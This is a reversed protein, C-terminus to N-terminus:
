INDVKVFKGGKESSEVCAVVAALSNAADSGMIPVPKGAVVADVFATIIGSTVQGGVANTQIGRTKHLRKEGTPLIAVVPYEPDDELKLVGKTCYLVTSNEEGAKLMWGAFMHGIAGKETRLVAFATDEVDCQKKDLRDCMAAAEVFDEGLLWRVLDIKHVGLDAMAGWVAQVKKFFHCDLGDVSWHEPGGHAFSTRFGLCRGLEGSAYIERGRRHAIHLRQNHGIMLQRRAGKAAQLMARAEKMSSAMPKECLVHAGAKLFAISQTAHFATPSCISAIDVKLKLAERYDAFYNPIGNEKAVEKARDPKPDAIAVVEVDNRLKYERLHRRQSIAGAGIIAVRLKQRAM